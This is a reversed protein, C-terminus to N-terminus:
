APLVCCQLGAVEPTPGDNGLAEGPDVTLQLGLGAGDARRVPMGLDGLRGTASSSWPWTGSKWAKGAAGTKWM